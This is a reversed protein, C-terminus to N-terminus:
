DNLRMRELLARHDAARREKEVHERKRAASSLGGNRAHRRVQAYDGRMAALQVKKPAKSIM